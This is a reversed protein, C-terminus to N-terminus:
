DDTFSKGYFMVCWFEIELFFERPWNAWMIRQFAEHTTDVGQDVLDTVIYYANFWNYKKINESDLVYKWYTRAFNEREVNERLFRLPIPIETLQPYPKRPLPQKM